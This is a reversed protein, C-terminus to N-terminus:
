LIKSLFNCNMSSVEPLTLDQKPSPPAFTQSSTLSTDATTESENSSVKSQLARLRERYSTTQNNSNFGRPISVTVDVEELRRRIYSQMYTSLHNCYALIDAKPNKQKFMKLELLGQRTTDKCTVRQLIKNVEKINEDSSDINDDKRCAVPSQLTNEKIGHSEGSSFSSSILSAADPAKSGSTVQAKAEMAVFEAVSNSTTNTLSSSFVEAQFPGGCNQEGQEEQQGKQKAIKRKALAIQSSLQSLNQQVPHETSGSLITSSRFNTNSAIPAHSTSTNHFNSVNQSSSSPTQLSESAQHPVRSMLANTAAKQPNHIQIPPLSKNEPLLAQLEEDTHGDRKLMLLIYSGVATDLPSQGVLNLHSMVSPGMAKVLSNLVTKMTRLPTDTSRKKWVVPPHTELFEHIERLLQSINVESLHDQLTKTLKWLCKMILETFRAPVVMKEACADSLVRILVAFTVDRRSNELIRLLIVNLARSIHAGEHWQEIKEDLLRSVLEVLLQQQVPDPVSRAFARGDYIHMICSLVHKCLRVAEPRKSPSAPEQSRMAHVTFVLRLQLTCATVLYGVSSLMNIDKDKVLDEAIKLAQM